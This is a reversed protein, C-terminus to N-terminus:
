RKPMPSGSLNVTMTNDSFIPAGVVSGTGSTITANGSAVNNNLSLVLAHSGGAGGARCEVAPTGSLPLNLDFTGVFGHVKRSVVSAITLPAVPVLATGVLTDIRWGPAGRVSDTGMRFRLKITRGNVMPGLNVVTNIYGGSDGSWAMRGALPNTDSTSIVGTYGGSVFSGGVAPNTIDTFAGGNINPSSVELVCGDWFVGGSMETNFNNRFSLQAAASMVFISPTDLRKDTTSSANGIFADNPASDPTATSTVWLPASGFNNTALWGAPLAPAVVGDFNESFGPAKRFVGDWQRQRGPLRSTQADLMIVAAVPLTATVVWPLLKSKFPPKM